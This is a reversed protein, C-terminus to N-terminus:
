FDGFPVARDRRYRYDQRERPVKSREPKPVLIGVRANTTGAFGGTPM